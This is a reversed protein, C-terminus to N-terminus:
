RAIGMLYLLAVVMPVTFLFSDLRDLFGGHGPLLSESDKIGLSRKMMSEALDGFTGSVIVLVSIIL